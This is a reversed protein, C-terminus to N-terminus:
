LWTEKRTNTASKHILSKDLRFVCRASTSIIRDSCALPAPLRAGERGPTWAALEPLCFARLVGSQAGRSVLPAHEWHGAPSWCRAGQFLPIPCGQLKMRSWLRGTSNKCRLTGRGFVGCVNPDLRFRLLTGASDYASHESDTEKEGTLAAAM